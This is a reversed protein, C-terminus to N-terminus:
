KNDDVRYNPDIVIKKRGDDPEKMEKPVGGTVTITKIDDPNSEIVEIPTDTEDVEQLSIDVDPFLIHEQKKSLDVIKDQIDEVVEKVVNTEKVSKFVPYLSEYLPNKVKNYEVTGISTRQKHFEYM